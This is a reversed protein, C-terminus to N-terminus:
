QKEATFILLILIWGISQSLVSSKDYDSAKYVNCKATKRSKYKWYVWIGVNMIIGVRLFDFASFTM